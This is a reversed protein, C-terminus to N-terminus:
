QIAAGESEEDEVDLGEIACAPGEGEKEDEAAAGFLGRNMCSAYVSAM